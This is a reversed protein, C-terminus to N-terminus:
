LNVSFKDITKHQAAKQSKWVQLLRANQKRKECNFNLQICLKINAVAFQLAIEFDTLPSGKRGQKARADHAAVSYCSFFAL